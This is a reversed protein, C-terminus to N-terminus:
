PETRGDGRDPRHGIQVASRFTPRELRLHSVDLVGSVLQDLDTEKRLKTGQVEPQTLSVGFSAPYEAAVTMVPVPPQPQGGRGTAVLNTRGGDRADAPPAHNVASGTSDFSARSTASPTTRLQSANAVEPRHILPGMAHRSHGIGRGRHGARHVGRDTAGTEGLPACRCRGRLPHRATSSFPGHERPTAAAHVVVDPRPVRRGSDDCSREDDGARFRDRHRRAARRPGCEGAPGRTSSRAWSPRAVPVISRSSARRAWSGPSSGTRPGTSCTTRRASSCSAVAACSRSATASRWRRTRTTPSSCRPPAPRRLIDCSTTASGRACTPTSAPSRSTSCCSRPNRPSPAPWRSANANVAPSSTRTGSTTAPSASSTAADRDRTPTGARRPSRAHRVRRQRGRHPAPVPRAGPVRPRHPTARTRARTARRRRGDGGIRIAGTTPLTSEPSSGCCRRSAAAARVSWPSCNTSASNSDVRRRGRRDVRLAQQRAAVTSPAPADDSLERITPETAARHSPARRPVTSRRAVFIM